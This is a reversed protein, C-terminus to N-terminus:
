LEEKYNTPKPIDDTNIRTVKIIYEIVIKFYVIRHGLYKFRTNFGAIKKELFAM